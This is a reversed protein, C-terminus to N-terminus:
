DDEIEVTNNREDGNKDWTIRQYNEGELKKQLFM